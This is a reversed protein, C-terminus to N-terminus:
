EQAEAAAEAAAAAAPRCYCPNPTRPLAGCYPVMPVQGRSVVRPGTPPGGEKKPRVDQDFIALPIALTACANPVDVIGSIRGECPCCSLLLYIQQATPQKNTKSPALLPLPTKICAKRETSFCFCSWRRGWVGVCVFLFRV